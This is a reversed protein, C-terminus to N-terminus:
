DMSVQLHLNLYWPFETEFECKACKEMKIQNHKEKFHEEPTQDEGFDVDCLFCKAPKLTSASTNEVLTKDNSKSRSKENEDDSYDYKFDDETKMECSLNQLACVESEELCIEM